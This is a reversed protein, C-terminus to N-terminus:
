IVDIYQRSAGRSRCPNWQSLSANAGPALKIVGRVGAEAPTGSLSTTWAGSAGSCAARVGAEAPTGSLGWPRRSGQPSGLVRVGAEAPTGSLCIGVGMSHGGLGVRVGAEAPTGSLSQARGAIKSVRRRAGRSRCPNWQSPVSSTMKSLKTTECGQKPLPEM